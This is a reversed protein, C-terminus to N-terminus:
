VQGFSGSGHTALRKVHICVYVLVHSLLHFCCTAVCIEHCTRQRITNAWLHRCSVNVLGKAVRPDQPNSQCAYVAMIQWTRLSMIDVFQVIQKTNVHVESTESMFVKCHCDAADYVLMNWSTTGSPPMEYRSDPAKKPQPPATNLVCDQLTRCDACLLMYNSPGLATILGLVVTSCWANTKFLHHQEGPDASIATGLMRESARMRHKMRLLIELYPAWWWGQLATCGQRFLQYVSFSVGAFCSVMRSIAMKGLSQKKISKAELKNHTGWFRWVLHLFFWLKTCIFCIRFLISDQFLSKLLSEFPVCQHALWLWGYGAQLVNSEQWFVSPGFCCTRLCRTFRCSMFPIFRLVWFTMSWVPDDITM